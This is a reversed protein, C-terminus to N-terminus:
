YQIGHVKLKSNLTTPKLNLLKAAKAQHGGTHALALQILSMEFRKIEQFFDIGESLNIEELRHSEENFVAQGALKEAERMMIQSLDILHQIGNRETAEAIRLPRAEPRQVHRDNVSEVAEARGASMEVGKERKSQHHLFLYSQRAPSEREM